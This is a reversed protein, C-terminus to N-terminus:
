HFAFWDNRKQNKKKQRIEEHFGHSDIKEKAWAIHRWQTKGKQNHM